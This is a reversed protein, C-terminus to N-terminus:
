VGIGSWYRLSIYAAYAISAVMLAVVGWGLAKLGSSWGQM